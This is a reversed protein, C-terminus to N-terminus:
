TLAKKLKSFFGKEPSIHEKTLKAFEMLADKQKKNLKTPTDVIVRVYEDGVGYGHLRPIGKGKLRFLTNTQTGSPITLMAKGKLTPVEIEDGFVSQVFSIPKQFYIDNDRREFHDHEVVHLTVYLDGPLANKEGAEGENSVRLHSGDDVGSPITIEIKRHKEVRGTGRCENCKNKITKGEGQCSNCTSTTSFMGFPTRATRKVQGSGHCTDCNVIDSKSKAGSGDCETCREMRPISISRKIGFAADELTIEMDFRIDAGRRPGRRRQGGGFPNGGGGFISEFIDEMGGGGFGGGFDSGSFGNFQDASTGFRDYQQRKKDDGLISAAQSIDKFKDASGEDKNLDPHYKKALKKYAKKIEVKSANKDVGLTEYYDEAM